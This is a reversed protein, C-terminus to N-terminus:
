LSTEGEYVIGTDPVRRSGPYLKARMKHLKEKVAYIDSM